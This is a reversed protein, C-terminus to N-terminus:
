RVGIESVDLQYRGGTKPLETFWVVLWRSTVPATPALAVQGSGVDTEAVVTSGDLGPGPASRLEVHGGSGRISITVGRVPTESELRVALGLGDKLGGFAATAYRDSRWSTSTDRDIANSASGGNESGDGQPDLAQIGAIDPTSTPTPAASAAATGTATASPTATAGAGSSATAAPTARDTGSGFNRLTFGAIVLALVVFVLVSRIVLRSEEADPPAVPLPTVFPMPPEEVVPTGIEPLDALTVLGATGSAPPRRRGRELLAARGGRHVAAGVTRGSETGSAPGAASGAASGTASGVASGTATTASSATTAGSATTARAAPGGPVPLRAVLSQATAFGGASTPGTASAPGGDPAPGTAQSPDDAGTALLRALAAPSEPGAQADLTNRCMTDLDVPIGPQLESPPTVRGGQYPATPLASSRTGPWRGTLGAYLLHVLAAADERRAEAAEPVPRGSAAAQVATGLLRIDGDGLLRLCEPRLRGHHLGHADAAALAQAAATILRRATEPPLPGDRLVATLDSGEEPPCVVFGGGPDAGADLPAGLRPDGVLRVRHAAGIVQDAHPHGPVLVSVDVPRDTVEDDARWLTGVPGTGLYERLRYRGALLTDQGAADLATGGRPRIGRGSAGM